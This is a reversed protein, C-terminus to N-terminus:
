VIYIYYCLNHGINTNVSVGGYSKVISSIFQMVEEIKREMGSIVRILLFSKTYFYGRSLSTEM